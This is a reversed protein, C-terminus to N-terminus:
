CGGQAMANQYPHFAVWDYVSTAKQTPPGGGWNPNGTWTNMMIFGPATSNLTSDSFSYVAKGDVYYEVKGATWQFGYNHFADSPNFALNQVYTQNSPHITYHVKGVNNTFEDTLFEIDIELPGYNPAQIWFFSDVVGPVSSVKIRSEYKGYNYGPLTLSQLESGHLQNAAVSLSLYGGPKGDYQSTLNALTPDILNGGTGIWPGNIRWIGNPSIKGNWPHFTEFVSDGAPMKASCAPQPQLAAQDQVNQAHAAASLLLFATAALRTAPLERM